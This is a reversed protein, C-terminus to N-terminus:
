KIYKVFKLGFGKNRYLAETLTSDTKLEVTHIMMPVSDRELHFSVLPYGVRSGLWLPRILQGQFLKFLFIRKGTEHWYRTKKIVGVAIEQVGDGNIDGCEFHFVPYELQWSSVLKGNIKSKIVYLSDSLKQLSISPSTSQAKLGSGSLMMLIIILKLTRM